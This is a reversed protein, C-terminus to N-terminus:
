SEGAAGQHAPTALRSSMVFLTALGLGALTQVRDSSARACESLLRPLDLAEERERAHGEVEFAM